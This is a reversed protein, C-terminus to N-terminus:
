KGLAEALFGLVKPIADLTSEANGEPSGGPDMPTGAVPHTMGHNWTPVIEPLGARHGAHPYVLVVVAYPFHARKLRDAAKEVMESSPWVGDDRGGIMLIPGHTREVAIQAAVEEGLDHARPRAFSLPQGNVTWSPMPMVMRCCAPYRLNAPVYAVVAKLAPYLSGLQLALEGGRSVGMVGLREGDVEPRKMMWALGQGFYELPINELDPPRGECHFYCLALAAYGHSALWAARRTQMGGESGSLVLVGPHKGGGPPMFYQGVLEGELTVMRVGEAVPMQELQASASEKADAILHFTITQPQLEHPPRYVHVDRAAPTMSWVLGMPSVTRYSGKVPAKVSTDVVGSADAAFEARAAWPHGDGDTLEASLEVRAGPTLGTARVVAIEDTMVRSPKVELTQAGCACVAAGAALALTSLSRLGM